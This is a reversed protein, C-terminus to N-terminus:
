RAAGVASSRARSTPSARSRCSRWRTAPQERARDLARRHRLARRVPAARLADRQVFVEESADPAFGVFYLERVGARGPQSPPSRASSSSARCTSCASTPSRPVAEEEDEPPQWVETSRFSRLLRGGDDRDVALAGKYLQPRQTGACVSSRACRLGGLDLGAPSPRLRSSDALRRPSRRCCWARSSSCRTARPSRPPSQLLLRERAGYVLAVLLATALVLPVTALYIPLAASDFEGAFGARM